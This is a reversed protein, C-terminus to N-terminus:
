PSVAEEDKSNHLAIPLAIAAAVLGTVVVADSAFFDELPMQGRALDGGVVVLAADQAVPPATGAAWVRVLRSQRGVLVQYLGGSLRGFSFRGLADTHTEAPELGAQRLWVTAGAAPVGQVNVVQGRLRGGADLAVDDTQDTPRPTKPDYSTQQARGSRMTEVGERSRGRAVHDVATRLATPPAAQLVSLPLVLGLAGLGARLAKALKSPHM